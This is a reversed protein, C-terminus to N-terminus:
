KEIPAPLPKWADSDELSVTGNRTPDAYNIPRCCEGFERKFVPRFMMPGEDDEQAPDEYVLSEGKYLFFAQGQVLVGLEGLNNVIWKVDEARLPIANMSIQTKLRHAYDLVYDGRETALNMMHNQEGDKIRKRTKKLSRVVYSCLADITQIM